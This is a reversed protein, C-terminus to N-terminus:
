LLFSSPPFIALKSDLGIHQPLFLWTFSTKRVEMRWGRGGLGPFLESARCHKTLHWLLSVICSLVNPNALSVLAGLFARRHFILGSEQCENIRWKWFRGPGDWINLSTMRKWSTLYPEGPTGGAVQNDQEDGRRGTPTLVLGTWENCRRVSCASSLNNAWCGCRLSLTDSLSNRPYLCNSSYSLFRVFRKTILLSSSSDVYPSPSICLQFRAWKSCNETESSYLHKNNSVFIRIKNFSIYM